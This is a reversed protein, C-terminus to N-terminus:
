DASSSGVDCMLELGKKDGSCGIERSSVRFATIGAVSILGSRYEKCNYKKTSKELEVRCNKLHSSSYFHGFRGM